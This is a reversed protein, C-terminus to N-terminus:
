KLVVKKGNQIFVGKQAKNVRQGQLNFIAGNNVTTQGNIIEIGDPDLLKEIAATVEPDQESTALAFTMPVGGDGEADYSIVPGRYSPSISMAYTNEYEDENEDVVLITGQIRVGPAVVWDGEGANFLRKAPKNSFMWSHKDGNDGQYTGSQTMNAFLQKGVNYLYYDEGQKYVGWQHNPDDKDLTSTIWLFEHENEDLYEAKEPDYIISGRTNTITYYVDTRPEYSTNEVAKVTELAQTLRESLEAEDISGSNYDAAAEEVAAKYAALAEATPYGIQVESTGVTMEELQHQAEALIDAGTRPKSVIFTSGMDYGATWFALNDESRRNLYQDKTTKEGTEEDEVEVKNYLFFGNTAHKSSAVMWTEYTHSGPADLTAYTDGGDSYDEFANEAGLVLDTGAANNVITFGKYPSGIFAWQTTENETLYTPLMVNPDAESDYTPYGTKASNDPRMTLNYWVPDTTDATFQFIPDEKLTATTTVTVDGTVTVPTVESYDYFGPILLDSPVASITAGAVAASTKEALVAGNEDLVQYTVTYGQATSIMVDIIAGGNKVIHNNSNVDDPDDGPNGGPDTSAWDVKFRARYTGPENPITVDPLTRDSNNLVNGQNKYSVLEGNPAESWSTLAEPDDVTYEGDNNLDIYLFGHMWQGNYGISPTVTAGQPVMIVQDTMDRYVPEVGKGEFEWEIKQDGLAVWTTNRDDRTYTQDIDFNIAYRADYCKVTIVGDAVTVKYTMYDYEAPFIVEVDEPTVQYASTYETATIDVEEGMISLKAGEPAGTVNLTYDFQGTAAYVFTHEVDAGDVTVTAEPEACAFGMVEPATFTFSAGDFAFHYASESVEDGYEDICNVKVVYIPGYAFYASWGGTGGRFGFNGNNFHNGSADDMSIYHPANEEVGYGEADEPDSFGPTRNDLYLDSAEEEDVWESSNSTGSLYLGDKFRKLKFATDDTTSPEISFLDDITVNTAATAAVSTFNCWGRKSNSPMRFVYRNGTGASAVFEEFTVPLGATEWTTVEQAQAVMTLCLLSLITFLKKM